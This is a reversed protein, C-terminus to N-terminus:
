VAAVGTMPNMTQPTAIAGDTVLNMARPTAIACKRIPADQVITVCQKENQRSIFRLFKMAIYIPHTAVFHVRRNM